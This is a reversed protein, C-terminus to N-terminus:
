SVRGSEALLKSSSYGIGGEWERGTETEAVTTM